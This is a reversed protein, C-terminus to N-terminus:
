FNSIIREFKWWLNYFRFILIQCNILAIVLELILLLRVEGWM